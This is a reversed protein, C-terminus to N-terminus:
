AGAGPDGATGRTVYVDGGAERQEIRAKRQYTLDLAALFATVREAREIGWVAQLIFRTRAALLALLKEIMERVTPRDMQVEHPRSELESLIQDLSDALEEFSVWEMRPGGTDSGGEALVEGYRGPPPVPRVPLLRVDIEDRLARAKELIHKLLIERAAPDDPSRGLREVLRTSKLLILLAVLELLDCALEIARPAHPLNSALLTLQSAHSAISAEFAATERKEEDPGTVLAILVELKQKLDFLPHLAAASM